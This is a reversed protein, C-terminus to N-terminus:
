NFDSSTVYRWKPPKLAAKSNQFWKIKSACANKKFTTTDESQM